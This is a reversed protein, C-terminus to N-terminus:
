ITGDTLHCYRWKLTDCNDMYGNIGPDLKVCLCCILNLDVEQRLDLNLDVRVCACEVSKKIKNKNKNYTFSMYIIYVNWIIKVCCHDLVSRYTNPWNIIKNCSSFLLKNQRYFKWWRHKSRTTCICTCIVKNKERFQVYCNCPYICFSDYVLM